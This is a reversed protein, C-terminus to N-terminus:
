NKSISLNYSSTTLPCPHPCIALSYSWNDSISHVQNISQRIASKYAGATYFISLHNYTGTPCVRLATKSLYRPVQVQARPLCATPVKAPSKPWCAACSSCVPLTERLPLLLSCFLPNSFCASSKSKSKSKRKKKEEEKRRCKGTSWCQAGAEM